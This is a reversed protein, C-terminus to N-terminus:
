KDNISYAAIYKLQLSHYLPLRIWTQLSLTVHTQLTLKRQLETHYCVSTTIPTDSWKNMNNVCKWTCRFSPSQTKLSTVGTHPNGMDFKLEVFHVVVLHKLEAVLYQRLVVILQGLSFFALPSSFVQLNRYWPPNCTTGTNALLLIHGQQWCQVFVVLIISYAWRPM